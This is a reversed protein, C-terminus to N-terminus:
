PMATAAIRRELELYRALKEPPLSGRLRQWARELLEAYELDAEVLDEVGNAAARGGAAIAARAERRRADVGALGRQLEDFVPWFDAEEAPTLGMARAVVIQKGSALQAKLEVLTPLAPATSQALAPAALACALLLLFVRSM